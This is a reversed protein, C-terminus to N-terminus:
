PAPPPRAGGGNYLGSADGSLGRIDVYASGLGLIVGQYFTGAPGFSVLTFQGSFSVTMLILAHEGPELVGNDNHPFVPDEQWSLDLVAAIEPTTIVQACASGALGAAAALSPLLRPTMSFGGLRTRPPHAP